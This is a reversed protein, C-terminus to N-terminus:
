FVFGMSSCTTDARVKNEKKEASVCSEALIAAAATITNLRRIAVPLNTTSSQQTLGCEHTFNTKVHLQTHLRDLQKGIM